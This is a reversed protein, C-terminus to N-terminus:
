RSVFRSGADQHRIHAVLDCRELALRALSEAIRHIRQQYGHAGARRHRHRSHHVRDEVKAEVLCCQAPELALGAIRAEHEVCPPAEDLEEALDRHANGVLGEVRRHRCDLRARRRAPRPSV